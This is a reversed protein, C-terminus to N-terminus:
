NNSKNNEFYRDLYDRFKKPEREVRSKISKAKQKSDTYVNLYYKQKGTTESKISIGITCSGNDNEAYRVAFLSDKKMADRTYVKVAEDFMKERVSVPLTNGFERAAADGLRTNAYVEEGDMDLKKCLRETIGDLAECLDFYNVAQELSTIEILQNKTLPCGLSYILHCILIRIQQIDSIRIHPVDHM